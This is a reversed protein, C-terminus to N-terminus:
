QRNYLRGGHSIRIFRVLLLGGALGLGVILGIWMGVMGWHRTISLWWGVPMGVIWYAFFTIFIPVRTDRLGRLVGCFVTQLGDLLQLLCAFQMLIASNAIISSDSTYLSVISNSGLLILCGCFSQTFFTLGIGIIGSKWIDDPNGCGKAQAVRVTIAVSLVFSVTCAIAVTNIAIQHNAVSEAGIRGIVLASAIFFGGEILRTMGVSLGFRLLDYIIKFKPMVGGVQRRLEFYFGKRYIYVLFALTQVWAIIGGAIGNGVAGLAPLGFAGYMLVYGIPGTLAFGILNFKFTQRAMSLGEFLGRCAYFIGLAPGAICIAFLFNRTDRVLEPTTAIFQILFPGLFCALATLFLSLMISGWLAQLFLPGVEAHRGAGKLQAVLAQLAMMLGSLVLVALMWVSSGITVAALVHASLQGALMVNILGTGIFSLHGGFLPVALALIARVEEQIRPWTFPVSIDYGSKKYFSM